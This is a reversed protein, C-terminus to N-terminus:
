SKVKCECSALVNFCHLWGLSANFDMNFGLASNIFKAKQVPSMYLFAKQQSKASAYFLAKDLDYLSVKKM